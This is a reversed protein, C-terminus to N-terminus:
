VLQALAAEVQGLYGGGFLNVHVMLPYLQYLAVRERYGDALPFAEKYAAFVHPGFGGFLKMMALDIERHGGYTAPDILCPEGLDDAILNGGWLDGHLRAPPEPPGCLSEMQGFLREFDRRVRAPALGADVAARLQPGLRRVRYFEPWGVAFTNKQPLRGIYNDHDLGFAPAGHRHLAALGRGLRDDFNPARRAPRILELALFPTLDNAGSAALVRPVRLAKADALWALGRAEAVFMDN